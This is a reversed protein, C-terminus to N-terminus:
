GRPARRALRAALHRVTLAGKIRWEPAIKALPELVFARHGIQRHPITLSRSRFPGGSWVAIDLDLVRNGWRRGRRRGFDREIAQLNALLVPPPLRTEILAIANAFDRGSLGHAPNILVQSASFLDFDRELQAIAATVVRAPTGYRGHPQNSGIAIAYLYPV